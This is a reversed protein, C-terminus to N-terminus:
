DTFKYTLLQQLYGFLSSIFIYLVLGSPLDKMIFGFILPMAMMVKQQTADMTTTPTIKQQLFMTIAMLVPLVYFPDKQSLDSIWWFFPADVLEVASYFVRYIAIFIPMQLLLPLCGGLPNAGSRKFLEMTEKQVRQPDEKFKEQIRKLEPQVKQMKKMSVASKHQLPYLVIRMLLTLIIIAVGYNPIVKYLWQMIHLMPIALVAFFGFDVSLQLNDGLSLLEDYNKKVFVFDGAFSSSPNVLDVTVMGEETAQYRLAQADKFVLGFLHYNFDVGVWKSIGDGMEKDGMDFREVDKTYLIFHRIQGNDLRKKPATFQLRYRAPNVSNLAFSIKGNELVEAQFTLQGDVSKGSIKTGSDSQLNLYVPRYVNNDLIYLAFPKPSGVTDEFSSKQNASVFQNVGLTNDFVIKAKDNEILFSQLEQSKTEEVKVEAAVSPVPAAPVTETVVPKSEVPKAPPFFYQWSFLVAASLLIALAFRKNDSTM